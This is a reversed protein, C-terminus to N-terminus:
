STRWGHREYNLECQCDELEQNVRKLEHEADTLLDSLFDIYRLGEDINGAQINCRALRYLADHGLHHLSESDGAPRRKTGPPHFECGALSFAGGYFSKDDIYTCFDIACGIDTRKIALVNQDVRFIETKPQM